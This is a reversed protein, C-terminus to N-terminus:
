WYVFERDLWFLSDEKIEGQNHPLQSLSVFDTIGAQYLIISLANQDSRPSFFADKDQAARYWRDIIGKGLPKTFDVGFLGASCSPIQYTQKLSLGFFVAAESNMYPGVEHTNGMVFCGKEQIREFIMNMSVLPVVSTDLWLARKFGLRQAEKFFAAKFAYPVHTLFLSGGETDPWGGVRYLLHGKFDSQILLNLLRQLGRPYQRNFTSYLLICNERGESDTNVPITGFRPLEEPTTGIIKISKTSGYMDGLRELRDRKGYSLFDQLFQYDGLTPHLPDKIQSYVSPFTPGLPLEDVPTYPTKTRVWVDMKEELDNSVKYPHLPISYNFVYLVDPIFRAHNGAMELIPIFYALDCAKSIFRGEYLLDAKEIEHFLAAYFTKLHSVTRRLQRFSGDKSVSEPIQSVFGKLHDPYYTFQGYTVWVDPNQYIANLHSLVRDHALWDNGDLDLVIENKECLFLAQTFCALPGSHEKNKILTFRDLKHNESVYQLALEETNDNSGDSIYIVRYNQYKQRLVSSLNQRHWGANNYSTIVIVFPKEEVSFLHNFFLLCLFHLLLQKKMTM